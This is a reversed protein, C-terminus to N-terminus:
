PRGRSKLRSRAGAARRSGRAKGGAPRATKEGVFLWAIGLVDRLAARSIRRLRVLVAPYKSYHETIYYVDPKEALLRARETMSVRVMLTDPEASGHIAQCALLKGRAKFAFGRPSTVDEVDPLGLAVDRVVRFDVTKAPM